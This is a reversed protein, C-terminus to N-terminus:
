NKELVRWADHRVRAVVEFDKGLPRVVAVEGEALYSAGATAYFPNGHSAVVLNAGPKLPTSL